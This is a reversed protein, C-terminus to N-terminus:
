ESSPARVSGTSIIRRPSLTGNDLSDRLRLRDKGGRVNVPVLGIDVLMVMEVIVQHVDRVASIVAPILKGPADADATEIAVTLLGQLMFVASGNTPVLTNCREVTQEIDFPYFRFGNVSLVEELNGVIYVFSGQLFGSLGTRGYMERGIPCQLFTRTMDDCMPADTYAFHGRNYKGSVCIEGVDHVSCPDSSDPEIIAVTCGASVAGAEPIQVGNPSGREVVRIRNARLENRDLFLTTPAVGNMAQQCFAANVRNSALTLVTGGFGLSSFAISFGQM